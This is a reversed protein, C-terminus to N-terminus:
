EDDGAIGRIVEAPTGYALVADPISALVVSGAGVVSRSGIRLRGAITAGLEVTAARGVTVRGGLHAGANIWVGDEITCEHDVSACTAIVVNEGLRSGPNVVAGAMMVTGAGIPVGAAVVAQPHIATALQFGKSRALATLRLRVPGNSVACILHEVGQQALLDLQEEGGLVTSDCFETHARDPNISDLFGVIEYDDRLRIIDAVILAHSSAGLDGARGEHV